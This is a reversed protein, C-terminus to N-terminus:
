RDCGQDRAVLTHTVTTGDVAFANPTSSLTTGYGAKWRAYPGPIAQVAPSLQAWAEDFQQANLDAYYGRVFRKVSDAQSVPSPEAPASAPPSDDRSATPEDDPSSPADGPIAA